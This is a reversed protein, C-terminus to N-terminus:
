SARRDHNLIAPLAHEDIGSGIKIRLRNAFFDGADISHEVGVSVSVVDEANVIQSWKAVPVLRLFQREKRAGIRSSKQSPHEAVNEIGVVFEAKQRLQFQLGDISRDLHEPRTELRDDQNM